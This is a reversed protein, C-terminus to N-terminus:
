LRNVSGGGGSGGGGMSPSNASVPGNIDLADDTDTPVSAGDQLHRPPKGDLTKLETLGSGVAHIGGTPGSSNDALEQALKALDQGLPLAVAGPQPGLVIASAAGVSSALWKM